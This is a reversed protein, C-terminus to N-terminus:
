SAYSVSLRSSTSQLLIRLFSSLVEPLSMLTQMDLLLAHVDQGGRDQDESDQQVLLNYYSLDGHLYGWKSLKQIIHSFQEILGLLAGHEIDFPILHGVPQLVLVASSCFDTRGIGRLAVVSNQLEPWNSIKRLNAEQVGMKCKDARAVLCLSLRRILLLPLNSACM